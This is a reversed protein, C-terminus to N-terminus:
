KQRHDIAIAIRPAQARLDAVFMTYVGKLMEAYNFDSPMAYIWGVKTVPDVTYTKVLVVDNSRADAVKLEVSLENSVATAPFGIFWLMPGMISLGYTILKGNYNTNLIKGSIIVDADGRKFDFYTEKFLRANQVESALAKPYDESPKYNTWLGSTAHMAQGEPVNLDQWGFPVLPIAYLAVLNTNENNRMDEFPLVVARKNSLPVSDRPPNAAYVWAKQSACGALLVVIFSLTLVISNHRKM